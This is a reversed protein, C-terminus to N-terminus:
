DDSSQSRLCIARGGGGVSNERALLCMCPHGGVKEFNQIYLAEVVRNEELADLVADIVQPRADASIYQKLRLVRGEAQGISTSSDRLHQLFEQFRPNQMM